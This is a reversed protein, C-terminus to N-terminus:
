PSLCLQAFNLKIQNRRLVNSKQLLLLLQLTFKYWRTNTILTTILKSLNTQLHVRFAFSLVLNTSVVKRLFLNGSLPTEPVMCRDTRARQRRRCDLVLGLDSENLHRQVCTTLCFVLLHTRTFAVTKNINKIEKWRWVIVRTVRGKRRKTESCLGDWRTEYHSSPAIGTARIRFIVVKSLVNHANNYNVRLVEIVSAWVNMIHM